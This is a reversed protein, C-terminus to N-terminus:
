CAGEIGPAGLTATMDPPLVGVELGYWWQYILLSGAIYSVRESLNLSPLEGFTLDRRVALQDKLM